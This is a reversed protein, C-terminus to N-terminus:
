DTGSPTTSLVVTGPSFGTYTWTFTVSAGGPLTGPLAPSPGASFSAVGSPALRFAAVSFGDVAASGTNTVTLTVLFAQGVNRPSPFTRLSAALFGAAQIATGANASANVATGGCTVGNAAGTFMATGAGAASYTWTFTVAGSPTLTLGGSPLPGLVYAVLGAPAPSLSPAVGTVDAGGTNTVTLTVTLWQGTSVQSPAAVVAVLAGPSSAVTVTASAVAVNTVNTGTVSVTLVVSGPAAGTVTWTFTRSASGPIAAPLAPTPGTVAAVAGPGTQWGAADVGAATVPTGNAVTVTLIFKEGVCVTGPAVASGAALTTVCAPDPAASGTAAEQAPTPLEAALGGASRSM